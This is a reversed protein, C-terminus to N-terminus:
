GELHRLCPIYPSYIKWRRPGGVLCGDSVPCIVRIAGSAVAQGSSCHDVPDAIEGVGVMGTDTAVWHNVGGGIPPLAAGTVTRRESRATWQPDGTIRAGYTRQWVSPAVVCEPLVGIGTGNRAVLVVKVTVHSAQFPSGDERRHSAPHHGSGRKGVAKGSPLCGRALSRCFTV